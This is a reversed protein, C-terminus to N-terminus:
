YYVHARLGVFVHDNVVCRIQCIILDEMCSACEWLGIPEPSFMVHESVLLLINKFLSMKAEDRSQSLYLALACLTKGGM